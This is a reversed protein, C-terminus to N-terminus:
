LDSNFILELLVFGVGQSNMNILPLFINICLIIERTSLARMQSLIEFDYAM